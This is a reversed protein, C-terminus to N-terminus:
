QSCHGYRDVYSSIVLFGPERDDVPPSMPERAASLERLAAATRNKPLVKGTLLERCVFATRWTPERRATSWGRRETRAEVRVRRLRGNIKTWYVGGIEVQALKM